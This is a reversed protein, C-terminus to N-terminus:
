HPLIGLLLQVARPFADIRAIPVEVIVEGKGSLRLGQVRSALMRQPHRTQAPFKLVHKLREGPATLSAFASVLLQRKDVRQLAEPEM